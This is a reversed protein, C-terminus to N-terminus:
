DLVNEKRTKNSLVSRSTMHHIKELLGVTTYVHVILHMICHVVIVSLFLVSFFSLTCVIFLKFDVVAVIAQFIINM